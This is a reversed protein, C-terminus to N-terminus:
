RASVIGGRVTFSQQTETGRPHSWSVPNQAVEILRPLRVQRLLHADCDGHSAGGDKPDDDSTGDEWACYLGNPDTFKLPNNLVYSYLNLSQPNTLDAYALGTPDPSMWRGMTSAYYRYGFNDLGSESDREKGTCRSACAAFETM